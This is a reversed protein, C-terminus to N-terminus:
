IRIIACRLAELLHSESIPKGINMASAVVEGGEFDMSTYASAVVFPIDMQRLRKAVPFVLEGRLNMDLLAVDPRLEELLNLAEQVSTAPGLVAYGNDELIMTLDMAILFEDEVILVTLSSNTEINKTVNM